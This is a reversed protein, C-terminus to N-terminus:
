GKVNQRKQLGEPEINEKVKQPTSTQEKETDYSTFKKDDKKGQDEKSSPTTKKHDNGHKANNVNKMVITKFRIIYIITGM